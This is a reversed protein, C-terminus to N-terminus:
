FPLKSNNFEPDYKELFAQRQREAKEKREQHKQAIEPSYETRGCIGCPRMDSIQECGCTTHQLLFNNIM